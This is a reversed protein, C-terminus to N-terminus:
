SFDPQVFLRLAIDLKSLHSDPQLHTHTFLLCLNRLVTKLIRFCDFGLVHCFAQGNLTLLSLPKTLQLGFRLEKASM